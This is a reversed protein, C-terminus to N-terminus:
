LKVCSITTESDETFTGNMDGRRLTVVGATSVKIDLIELGDATSKPKCISAYSEPFVTGTPTGLYLITSYGECAIRYFGAETLTIEGSVGASSGKASLSATGDVPRFETGTCYYIKGYQYKSSSNTNHCYYKGVGMTSNDLDAYEIPLNRLKGYDTVVKGDVYEKVCGATPVNVSGDTLMKDVAPTRLKATVGGGGSTFPEKSICGGWLDQGGVHNVAYTTDDGIGLLDKVTISDMQWGATIGGAAVDQNCYIINNTQDDTIIFCGEQMESMDMFALYGGGDSGDAPAFAIVFYCNAWDGHIDAGKIVSSDAKIAEFDPTVSTNFYLTTPTDGVEIPANGASEVSYLNKGYSIFKGENESVLLANMEDESTAELMPKNVLNKYNAITLREIAM